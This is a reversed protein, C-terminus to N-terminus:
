SSPNAIITINGAVPLEFPRLLIDNAGSQTADNRAMLPISVYTVGPIAALASYVSSVTVRQGLAANAPAFLNQVTQIAIIQVSTPSYRASVGVIVPTSIAGINVPIFNAPLASVTTGAMVLPQLYTIVQDLVAQTPVTNGSAAIYVTVNNYSNAVASAQSVAPLTMALSGYDALTVARQQTTFARPANVRIQDITEADM